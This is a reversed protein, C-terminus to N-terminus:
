WELFNQLINQQWNLSLVRLQVLELIEDIIRKKTNVEDVLKCQSMSLNINESNFIKEYYKATLNKQRELENAVFRKSFEEQYEEPINEANQTIVYPNDLIDICNKLLQINDIKNARETTAIKYLSSLITVNGQSKDQLLQGNNLINKLKQQYKPPLLNEITDFQEQEKKNLRVRSSRLENLTNESIYYKSIYPSSFTDIEKGMYKEAVLETKLKIDGALFKEINDNSYEFGTLKYFLESVDETESLITYSTILSNEYKRYTDGINLAEIVYNKLCNLIGTQKKPEVYLDRIRNSLVEKIDYEKGDRAIYINQALNKETQKVFIDSSYDVPTIKQNNFSLFEPNYSVPASSLNVNGTKQNKLFTTNESLSTVM